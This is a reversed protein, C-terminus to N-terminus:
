YILQPENVIQTRKYPLRRGVSEIRGSPIAQADALSLHCGAADCSLMSLSGAMDLVFIHSLLVATMWVVTLASWIQSDEPGPAPGSDGDRSEQGLRIGASIGIRPANAVDAHVPDRVAVRCVQSLDCCLSPEGVGVPSNCTTRDRTWLIKGGQCQSGALAERIATSM